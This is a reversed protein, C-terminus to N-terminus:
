LSAGAHSRVEGKLFSSLTPRQALAEHREDNIVIELAIHPSPHPCDVLSAECESRDAEDDFWRTSYVVKPTSRFPATIM